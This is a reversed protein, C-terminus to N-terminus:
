RPPTSTSAWTSAASTRRADDPQVGRRGLPGIPYNQLLKAGAIYMPCRHRGCTPRPSTSPRPRSAPSGPSADVDAPRRRGRRADDMSAAATSGGRAVDAIAPDSSGSPSRCRARRCSCAPRALLRQRRLGRHTHQGGDLGAAVRGTRRARRPLPQGGRRRRDPLGHQAHRRAAERGGQDARFPARVVEFRRRLSRETWLPSRARGVDSLQTLIAASRTSPPRAPRRSAVDPRRAAGHGAPSRSRCGSSGGVLLDRMPEVGPDAASAPTPSTPRRDAREVATDPADREFDLYQLSM